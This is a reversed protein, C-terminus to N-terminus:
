QNYQKYQKELKLQNEVDLNPPVKMRQLNGKRNITYCTGDSYQIIANDNILERKQLNNLSNYVISSVMKYPKIQEKPQTPKPTKLVIKKPEQKEKLKGNVLVPKQINEENDKTEQEDELDYELKEPEEPYDRRIQEQEETLM